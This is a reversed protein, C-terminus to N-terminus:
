KQRKGGMSGIQVAGPGTNIQNVGGRSARQSTPAASAAGQLAGVAAAKVALPASRFLELLQREDSTLSQVGGVRDGSIVYLADLGHAAWEALADASPSAVGTEWNFLTKRTAGVLAAFATQSMGLREREEKLREAIHM